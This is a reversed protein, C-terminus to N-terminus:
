CRGLFGFWHATVLVMENMAIKTDKRHETLLSTRWPCLIAAPTWSLWCLDVGDRFVNGSDLIGIDLVTMIM